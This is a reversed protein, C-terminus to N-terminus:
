QRLRVGPNANKDDPVVASNLNQRATTGTSSSETSGDVLRSNSLVESCSKRPYQFFSENKPNLKFMYLKLVKYCDNVDDTECMWALKENSSVAPQNKTAEDPAM